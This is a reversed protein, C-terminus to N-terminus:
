WMVPKLAVNLPVDGRYLICNLVHRDLESNYVDFCSDADAYLEFATVTDRLNEPIQALVEYVSPVINGCSACGHYTVIETVKELNEAKALPVACKIYSTYFIGGGEVWFKTGDPKGHLGLRLKDISAASMIPRIRKALRLAKSRPLNNEMRNLQAIKYRVLESPAKLSNVVKVEQNMVYHKLTLLRILFEQPRRRCCDPIRYSTLCIM